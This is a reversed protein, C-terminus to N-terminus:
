VHRRTQSAAEKREESRTAQCRSWGPQLQAPDNTLAEFPDNWVSVLSVTEIFVFVTWVDMLDRIEGGCEAFVGPAQGYSITKGKNELSSDDLM